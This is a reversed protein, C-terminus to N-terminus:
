NIDITISAYALRGVYPGGYVQFQKNDTLNSAGFKFTTQWSVITYSIQADLLYYTPIAGTFQPSGEFLFGQIWKFNVAFGLKGDKYNGFFYDRGSIGLNFKNEPTNFAPIIPDSSGRKNLRNFTYNANLSLHDNLYYNSGLSFGQTSVADKTNAAIRYAQLDRPVNVGELFDIDLGLKFGIFNTYFSYYYNADIYLHKGLVARYGAEVTQVREPRIPDVNFYDLDDRDLTSRFDSFSELTVLSDYGELNGLLIARGANYYLYQEQLTPNRIASSFSLRVMHNENIDYVASIAPSVLFDFNQNKDVRMTASLKLREHVYKKTWGVYAGFESNVIQRYTTDYVLQQSGPDYRENTLELENFITGKSNPRYMRGNGGVTVDGWSLNFLYQGHIHYLASKDYFKSGGQTFLTNTLHNKVSDFEATGENIRNYSFNNTINRNQTHWATLSDNNQALFDQYPGNAWDEYSQNPDKAPYGPLAEVKKVYFRRWNNNYQTNWELNDVVVENMNFATVVADYSDGANENTAYARVFWKDKKSLELVNQFFLINKLSFRNEGQYVTTGTGFFSNYSLQVNNKFNYYLGMNLKLNETNYDVMDIERYGNRYYLELGPREFREIPDRWDNNFETNEDGYINVADFGGPNNEKMESGDSAAYNTAEWDNAKLYFFNLKYGFSNSGDARKFGQAWRVAYEQLNREGLKISASLGPFEFPNKTNMSIVGNFANPGFFATSAGAIVDVNMLDLESAGLFNGLAFNLGPAQNDVGDIIQLSRTPSTSNFGRTNIIKFGISASTLDVGKLNGLGEYFSVSPTEKIAMIDMAEVTLASEKQKESLRREVVDVENLMQQDPEIRIVVPIANFIQVNSTVYGIFSVSVTVPYKDKAILTFNGDIDTSTGNSTGKIIVNAGIVPERAEDIVRGTVVNQANGTIGFIFVGILLHLIKKIM